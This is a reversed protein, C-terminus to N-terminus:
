EERRFELFLGGLFVIGLIIGTSLTIASGTKIVKPEFKFTVTHNGKPLEIGRLMYNAQIIDIEEGDIEAIWGKDYFAESFLALRDENLQYEYVLKDAQYHMLHITDEPHASYNKTTIKDAFEKNVIATKRTDIKDLALIEENPSDAFQVHDVFWANGNANYNTQAIVEGQNEIIYYKINLMNLVEEKGESIYFDYLEQMRGPKAGHYGGITNHFYATRGSNMPDISLDLVRYHGKDEMIKKDADNPTFPRSIESKTLWQSKDNGDNTVYKLDVSVLDILILVGFIVLAMSQKLKNKLYAFITAAILLVLVLTRISDNTLMAARDKKLAKVFDPGINQMFQQDQATSFDFLINKFVIFFLAIGGTIITTWKLAHLKEKEDVKSSFLRTLGYVGFFPILLQIVVQIMSVTRFKSYLPVYDIFFKTVFNFNHGWSLVLAFVTSIAVWWKMKGKVLYLALIFLFIVTAGLYNPAAVIPQEGWYTPINEIFQEAQNPPVNLDILSQYSHSDKSLSESSAGGTFGPIFLNMSEAIGYSYQTIYDYDLGKKTKPDGNKDITLGTDGRTSWGTYQETAMLKTANAAVGLIAAIFMIGVSKLFHPLQKDKFAQYLYVLGIIIVVFMLYYTIQIHGTFIELALSLALLLGGWLYKNRFVAFVGALVMPMYAIAHAKSNHGVGIIIILYTSFGFALAGLAAMRYDVKLVLFLIYLGIFYLFLYDAPKPLFRLTQDVSHIFNNPYKTSPLYLPMGGFANDVWYAEKDHEKRFDTRERTMGKTERIDSQLMKKGQLVPKFYALAAVMFGIIIIIHPLIKKFNFNM